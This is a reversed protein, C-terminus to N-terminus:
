IRNDEGYYKRVTNIANMAKDIAQQKAQEKELAKYSDLLEKAQSAVDKPLSTDLSITQMEQMHAPMETMVLVGKPNLKDTAVPQTLLPSTDTFLNNALM